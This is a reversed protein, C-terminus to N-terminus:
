VLEMLEVFRLSCSPLALRLQIDDSQKDANSLDRTEEAIGAGCPLPISQKRHSLYPDAEVM